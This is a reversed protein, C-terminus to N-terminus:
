QVTERAGRMHRLIMESLAVEGSGKITNWDMELTIVKDDMVVGFKVSPKDLAAAIKGYPDDASLEGREAAKIKQAIKDAQAKLIRLPSHSNTM